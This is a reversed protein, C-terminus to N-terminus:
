KDKLLFKVSEKLVTNSVPKTLFLNIGSDMATKRDKLFAHATFCLIPTEGYLASQKFQRTLEIGSVDGKISIDMIIIDYKNGTASEYFEEASEYIEIEFEKNFLRYLVKQTLLDDELVLMRKMRMGEWREKTKKIM